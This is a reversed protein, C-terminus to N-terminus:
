RERARFDQQYLRRERAQSHGTVYKDPNKVNVIATAKVIVQGDKYSVIETQISGQPYADNFYAIRDKVM